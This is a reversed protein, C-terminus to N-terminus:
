DNTPQGDVVKVYVDDENDIFFYKEETDKGEDLIIPYGAEKVYLIRDGVVYNYCEDGVSVVVGTRFSRVDSSLFIGSKTEEVYDDQKVILSGRIARLKSKTM